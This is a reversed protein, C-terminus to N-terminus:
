FVKIGVMVVMIIAVIIKTIKGGITGFMAGLGVKWAKDWNGSYLGEFVAAGLLAGIFLGLLTGIVPIVPTGLVAGLFAGVIAGIMGWKSGGFKKAMAAGLIGEIVEIGITILLLLGAFPLSYKEFGTALGYVLVDAVIVFTGPLGFPILLVGIVLFLWLLIMGLIEM